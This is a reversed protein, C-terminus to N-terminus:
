LIHLFLNKYALLNIYYTLIIKAQFIWIEILITKIKKKFFITLSYKRSRYFRKKTKMKKKYVMLIKFLNVKDRFSNQHM